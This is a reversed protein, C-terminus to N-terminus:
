AVLSHLCWPGKGKGVFIAVRVSVLWWFIVYSLSDNSSPSTIVCLVCLSWFRVVGLSRCLGPRLGIDALLFLSVLSVVVSAPVHHSACLFTTSAPPHLTPSFDM